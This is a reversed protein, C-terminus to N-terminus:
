TSYSGRDKGAGTRPHLGRWTQRSALGVPEGRVGEAGRGPLGGVSRGTNVVDCVHPAMKWRESVLAPDGGTSPATFM